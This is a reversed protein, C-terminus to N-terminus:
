IASRSIIGFITRSYSGRYSFNIKNKLMQKILRANMNLCIQLLNTETKMQLLLPYDTMILPIKNLLRTIIMLVTILKLSSRITKILNSQKANLRVKIRM